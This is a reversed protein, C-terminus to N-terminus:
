STAQICLYDRAILSLRSYKRQKAQWWILPDVEDELPLALYRELEDRIRNMMPLSFDSNDEQLLTDSSRLQRFYNRTNSLNNSSTTTPKSIESSYGNLNSILNITKTKKDMSKFATLKIRPDLLSSVQSTEDLIPWYSDLKQYIANAVQKQSFNTNDKYRSLHDQIGLLVFRVDGHTPYSLASLLRTAREIPELLVMTNDINAHDHKDPCKQRVIQDDAALMTLPSEMKKWKNLMYYTSNWRHKVDLEPALYDVGKMECLKKLNNITPHSSKIYSMLSRVKIISVDILDIGRCVALNLVHAACRYHSFDFNNFDEELEEAVITDCSIMSSANDMTLVLTKESICNEDLIDMLANAINIGTHWEKMPIIDLLFCKLKWSIDVYHITLSLFSTGNSATWLDSTFAVKGPVQNLTLKVEDKKKSIARNCEEEEVVSFPQMDCVIWRVVLSDREKQKIEPHSNPNLLKQGHKPAIINHKDLLHRRLMSTASTSSFVESCTKCVSLGPNDETEEDFYPWIPSKRKKASRSKHSSINQLENQENQNPLSPDEEEKQEDDPIDPDPIVKYYENRQIVDM